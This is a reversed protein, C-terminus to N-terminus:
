RHSLSLVRKTPEPHALVFTISLLAAHLICMIDIELPMFQVAGVTFLTM